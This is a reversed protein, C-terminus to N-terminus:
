CQTAALNLEQLLPALRNEILKQGMGENQEGKDLMM